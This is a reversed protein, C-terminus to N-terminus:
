PDCDPGVTPEGLPYSDWTAAEIGTENAYRHHDFQNFYGMFNTTLVQNVTRYKRIIDFQEKAFNITQDSSFEYFDLRVAPNNETVSQTPLPMDDFSNLGMSWFYKTGQAKNMNEVSGYKKQLWQQFAKEAHKDYTRVTDHCGMENDQQWMGVHPNSGYRKALQETIRKSLMQYDPSSTSYHRRSGFIRNFHNPDQGYIDYKTTAWRPPTATPTGLIVKMGSNGIEEIARDLLTWDYKGDEPEITSWIFEGIRIYTLKADKQRQVDNKALDPEDVWAEPYYDTAFHLGAPLTSGGNSSSSSNSNQGGGNNRAQM